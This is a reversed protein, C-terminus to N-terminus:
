SGPRTRLRAFRQVLITVIYIAHPKFMSLTKEEANGKAVIESVLEDRWDEENSWQRLFLSRYCESSLPGRVVNLLQRIM